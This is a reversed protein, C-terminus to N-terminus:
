GHLAGQGGRGYTLTPPRGTAAALTELRRGVSAMLMNVRASALANLSRAEELRARPAPGADRAAVL